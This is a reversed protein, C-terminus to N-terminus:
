HPPFPHIGPNNKTSDEYIENNIEKNYNIGDMWGVMEFFEDEVRVKYIISQKLIHGWGAPRM